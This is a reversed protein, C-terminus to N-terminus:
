WYGPSGLSTASELAPAPSPSSSALDDQQALYLSAHLAHPPPAAMGHVVM